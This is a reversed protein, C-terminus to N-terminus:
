NSATSPELQQWYAVTSRGGLTSDQSDRKRKWLIKREREALARKEAESMEFYVTPHKNQKKSLSILKKLNENEASSKRSRSPRAKPTSKALRKPETIRFRSFDIQNTLPFSRGAGEEIRM